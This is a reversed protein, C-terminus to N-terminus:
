FCSKSTIYIYIYICLSEQLERMHRTKSSAQGMPAGNDCGLLAALAKVFKPLLLRVIAQSDSFTLKVHAPCGASSSKSSSREDITLRVGGPVVFTMSRFGQANLPVDELSLENPTHKEVARLANCFLPWLHGPDSDQLSIPAQARVVTQTDSYNLAAGAHLVRQTALCIGFEKEDEPPRDLRLGPFTMLALHASPNELRLQAWHSAPRVVFDAPSASAGKPVSSGPEFSLLM